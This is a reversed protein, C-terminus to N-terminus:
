DKDTVLKTGNNEFTILRKKYLAGIAQKYTKKSVGFLRYIKEPASKDTVTMFGGQTKLYDLIVDTLETVKQFGPKRLCLDIKGDPRVQKIFGDIKQGRELPQFVDNYFLVGGHQNNVIAKFGLDTEDCILLQVKEGLQYAAPTRNLYKDLKSSAAIRNSTEDLYIYVVYSQHEIMKTKQERFPVLLDKPLGWDLFAGIPTVAVVRLVAFEGVMALPRVTTATLRDESDFMLFVEIIDGPQWNKPVYRNPLLVEGLNGGNLILGHDTARLVPLRNIKDIEAM